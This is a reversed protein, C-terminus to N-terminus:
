SAKRLHWGTTFRSQWVVVSGSASALRGGAYDCPGSAGPHTWGTLADIVRGTEVSLDDAVGAGHRRAGDLCIFVGFGAGVKQDRAGANRNPGATETDPVVFYCPLQRPEAPTGAFELVGEVRKLGAATLQAVIPALPLKM